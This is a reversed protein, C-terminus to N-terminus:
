LIVLQRIICDLANGRESNHEMLFLKNEKTPSRVRLYAALGDATEDTIHSIYPTPGNGVNVSLKKEELDIDSLTLSMIQALNLNHRDMLTFIAKNRIKIIELFVNDTQSSSNSLTITPSSTEIEDQKVLFDVQSLDLYNQFYNHIVAVNKKNDKNYVSKM